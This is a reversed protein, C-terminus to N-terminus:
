GAGVPGRDLRSMRALVAAEDVLPLMWAFMNAEVVVPGADSLAIDWGITRAPLLAPASRRVLDLTESWLPADVGEIRVGTEPVESRSVFGCGDPRAMTLPGLRGTALSVESIGNGSTGRAFNDFDGGGLAMRLVAYLIEVEGEGDILTVVRLTQIATTPHLRALDPHDHLRQQVVWLSFEPDAGLHAVLEAPTGSWRASVLRDGERGLVMVSRGQYGGSPKVVFEGPLDRAFFAEIGDADLAAGALHSWGVGGTDIIGFLRPIPIGAAACYPYFIAKEGSIPTVGAPNLRRQVELVAHRSVHLDCDAEPRRPDLLGLGLAEDYEFGGHVRMRRARRAVAVPSSAHARAGARSVRVLERGQGILGGLRM